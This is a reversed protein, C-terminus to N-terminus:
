IYLKNERMNCKNSLGVTTATSLHACCVSCLLRPSLKANQEPNMSVNTIHAGLNTTGGSYSLSKDCIQCTANKKDETLKFYKWVSSKNKGTRPTPAAM